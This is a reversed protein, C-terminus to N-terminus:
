IRYVHSLSFRGMKQELRGSHYRLFWLLPRIGDWCGSANMKGPQSAGGLVAEVQKVSPRRRRRWGGGSQQEQQQGHGSMHRHITAVNHQKLWRMSALCFTSNTTLRQFFASIATRFISTLARGWGTLPVAFWDRPPRYSRQSCRCDTTLAEAITTITTPVAVM